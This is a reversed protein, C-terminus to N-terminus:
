PSEEWICDDGDIRKLVNPNLVFFGGNIYGGEGIPKEQFKSIKNGDLELAGFRAPPITALITSLKGHTRHFEFVKTLNVDTVQGRLHFM